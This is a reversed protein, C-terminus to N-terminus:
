SQRANFSSLGVAALIYFTGVSWNFAIRRRVTSLLKGIGIGLAAYGTYVVASVALAMPVLVILQAILSSSPQIFQPFVALYAFIAKPNTISTLFAQRLASLRSIPPRKLFHPGAEKKLIMKVGLWALYAVGIWKIADFLAANALLIASLGLVSAAIHCVAAGLVGAVSWLSRGFGSSMSTVICNMANPGLPISAATWISAFVLLEQISM